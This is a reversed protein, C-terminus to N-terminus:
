GRTDITKTGTCAKGFDPLLAPRAQSCLAPLCQPRDQRDPLSLVRFLISQSGLYRFLAIAHWAGFVFLTSLTVVVSVQLESSLDHGRPSTGM